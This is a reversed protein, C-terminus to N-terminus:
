KLFSMKIEQMVDNWKQKTYKFSKNCAISGLITIIIFLIWVLNSKINIDTWYIKLNDSHSRFAHLLEIISTFGIMLICVSLFLLLYPYILKKLLLPKVRLIPEHMLIIGSIGKPAFTIVLVFIVGFYLVWAETIDSLITDLYTLSIAGM